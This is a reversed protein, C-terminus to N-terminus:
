EDIFAEIDKVSEFSTPYLLADYGGCTVHNEFCKQFGSRNEELLDHLWEEGNRQRYTGFLSIYNRYSNIILRGLSENESGVLLWDLVNDSNRHTIDEIDLTRLGKKGILEKVGNFQGSHHLLYIYQLQDMNSLPTLDLAEEIQMASLSFYKLKKCNTVGNILKQMSKSEGFYSLPSSYGFSLAELEPFNSLLASDEFDYSDVNLFKLNSMKKGAKKLNGAFDESINMLFTIERLNGLDTIFSTNKVRSAVITLEKLGALEGLGSFDGSAGSMSISYLNEIDKLAGINKVKYLTEEALPSDLDVVIDTNILNLSKLNKFDKFYEFDIEMGGGNCLLTLDEIDNPIKDFSYSQFIGNDPDPISMRITNNIGTQNTTIKLDKKTGTLWGRLEESFIVEDLAIEELDPLKEIISNYDKFSYKWDWCTNITTSPDNFELYKLKKCNGIADLNVLVDFTPDNDIKLSTLGTLYRLDSLDVYNGRQFTLRLSDWVLGTSKNCDIKLEKLSACDKKTLADKASKGLAERVCREVLSDRFDAKSNDCGTCFCAVCLSLLVFVLALKKM